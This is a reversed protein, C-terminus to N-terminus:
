NQELQQKQEELTDKWISWTEWRGGTHYIWTLCPCVSRNCWLRGKGPRGSWMKSYQVVIPNIVAWFKICSLLLM